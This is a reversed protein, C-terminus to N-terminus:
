LFGGTLHADYGMYDMISYAVKVVRSAAVSLHTVYAYSM